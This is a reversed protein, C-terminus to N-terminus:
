ASRDIGMKEWFDEISDCEIGGGEEAEKMASLTKKNPVKAKVPFDKRLYSLIFESLNMHAKEALMKIYLREDYSCTITVKAQDHPHAGM